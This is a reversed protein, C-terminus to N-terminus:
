CEPISNIAAAPLAKRLIILHLNDTEMIIQSLTVQLGTRRFNEGFRDLKEPQAEVSQGTIRYLGKLCRRSRSSPDFSVGVLIVGCGGPKLVRAIEAASTPSFLYAAPFTAVVSDFFQEPWPLREGKGRVLLANPHAGVRHSAIRCMSGSEDIGAAQPFLKALRAFLHGTGFGIELVSEGRLYPMVSDTWDFWRGLSVVWAVLDYAFAFPHYLLHFLGNLLGTRFM